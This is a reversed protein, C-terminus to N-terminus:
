SLVTKELELIIKGYYSQRYDGRLLNAVDWILHAKDKLLTM